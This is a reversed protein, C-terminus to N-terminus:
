KGEMAEFGMGIALYDETEKFKSAIEWFIDAIINIVNDDFNM